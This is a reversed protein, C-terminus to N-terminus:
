PELSFRRLIALGAKGSKEPHFQTGWINERHIVAPVAIGEYHCEALLHQSDKLQAMFSHVFYMSDTDAIDELLGGKWSTQSAGHLGAWGLHPLKIMRGDPTQRPIAVVRGPILGLGTTLGFEESEDMMMQMGLCIGLIPVGSRALERIPEILGLRILNEMGRSFAGVGPLIIKTARKLEGPTSTIVPNAGCYELARSVSYINGAGYDVM